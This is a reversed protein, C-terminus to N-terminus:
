VSGAEIVPEKKSVVRMRGEEAGEILSATCRHESGVTFEACGVLRAYHPGSEVVCSTEYSSLKM